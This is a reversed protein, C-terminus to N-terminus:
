KQSYFHISETHVPCTIFTECGQSQLTERARVAADLDAFPAFFVPGSGSLCVVHANAGLMAEKAKKAEPYLQLLSRELGNHLNKTELTQRMGLASSIARSHTDTTCDALTFNRFVTATSVHIAPRALLLWRMSSPWHPPLPTVREGRGECLALGGSLFFPVDSGLSAALTVMDDHSLPLNWWRQLAVLVAAANSSGGGMGAAIPIKKELEIKVGQSLSLRERVAQAARVVLNDTTNLDPNSCVLEIRDDAIATLCIIDYIDVTQMVSALDHYGDPRKGLIDLTVNIKAYSRILYCDDM